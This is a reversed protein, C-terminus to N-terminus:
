DIPCDYPRHEPLTSAKVKYFVDAYHHYKRPLQITSEEIINSRKVSMAFIFMSEKRGKEHLQHPSITSIRHTSAQSQRYRIGSRSLAVMYLVLRLRHQFLCGVGFKDFFFRSVNQVNKVICSEVQEGPCAMHQGGGVVLYSLGFCLSCLSARLRTTFM